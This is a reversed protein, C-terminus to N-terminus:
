TSSIIWCGRETTVNESEPNVVQRSAGPAQFLLSRTHRRGDDITFHQQAIVLMGTGQRTLENASRQRVLLGNRKPVPRAWRADPRKLNGALM